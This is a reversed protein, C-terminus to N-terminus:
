KCLHQQKYQKTVVQQQQKMNKKLNKKKDKLIRAEDFLADFVSDYGQARRNFKDSDEYESIKPVFLHQGTQSDIQEEFYRLKQRENEIEEQTARKSNMLRQLFM